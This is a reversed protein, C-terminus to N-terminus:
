AQNEPSDPKADFADVVCDGAPSLLIVHERGDVRVLVLKRRPDLMLSERVRMRRSDGRAGPQLMGFRRAGYAALMILALTAVLAALMRAWDLIDVEFGGNQLM